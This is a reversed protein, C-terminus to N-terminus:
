AEALSKLNALIEELHKGIIRGVFFKELMKGMVGWPAEYDETLTFRSGSPTAEISWIQDDRKAPGSVMTFALRENEVWETVVYHLKMLQPGSKEEYYFPTGVGGKQEGTYEFKRLLTFWQMIKEPEVLYPWIKEPMAAIAISREVRM